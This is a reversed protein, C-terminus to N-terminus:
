RRYNFRIADFPLIFQFSHPLFSDHRLPHVIGANAQRSQLFGCLIESYGTDQGLISSLVERGAVLHLLRTLFLEITEYALRECMDEWQLIVDSPQSSRWSKLTAYYRVSIAAPDSIPM